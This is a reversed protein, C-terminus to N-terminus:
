RWTFPARTAHRLIVHQEAIAQLQEIERRARRDTVRAPDEAHMARRVVAPLRLDLAGAKLHEPRALAATRLHGVLERRHDLLADDRERQAV